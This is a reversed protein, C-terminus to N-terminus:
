KWIYINKMYLKKGGKEYKKYILWIFKKECKVKARQEGNRRKKGTGADARKAEDEEEYEATARTVEASM